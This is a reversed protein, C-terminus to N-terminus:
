RVVSDIDATTDVNTILPSVSVFSTNINSLSLLHVDGNDCTLFHLLVSIHLFSWCESLLKEFIKM